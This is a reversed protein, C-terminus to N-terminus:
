YVLQVGTDCKVSTLSVDAAGIDIGLLQLLPGVLSQDLAVLVPQLVPSLISLAGTLMPLLNNVLATVINSALGLGTLDLRAHLLTPSFLSALASALLHQGTDSSWSMGPQQTAPLSEDVRFDHSAPQDRVVPASAYADLAVTLPPTLISGLLDLRLDLLHAYASGNAIAANVIDQWRQHAGGYTGDPLHGLFANVAGPQVKLTAISQTTTGAPTHCQLDDLWAEAPVLEVNLPIRTLTTSPLSVKVLGLLNLLENNSGVSSLLSTDLLMRVQATRAVTIPTGDANYGARGIAIKPPETIALKLNIKALGLLDLNSVELAVANKSNAAQLSANLLDAANVDVALAKGPDNTDAAVNLIDGLSISTNAISVPIAAIQSQANSLEINTLGGNQQLVQVTAMLFDGLRVQAGLVGDLTGADLHLADKLGLLSLNGNAIGQYSLLKLGLSTGLASELIQNLPGNATVGLLRSGVSFAAIPTGQNAAIATAGVGSFRVFGFFPVLPMSARVRVANPPHTADAGTFHQEGGNAPDWYGCAIALSGQFHNDAASGRAAANDDNGAPCAQLRQAGALAALDAVKQAERKAWFLYGVEVLGLMGLLGVMMILMPVAMSGRVTRRSAARAPCRPRATATM